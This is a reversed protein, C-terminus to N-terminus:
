SIQLEKLTRHAEDATSLKPDLTLAKKLEDIAKSDEGMKAFTMGLHYHTLANQPDKQLALQLLPVAQEVLDKKYYIWGLTDNFAPQDPAQAKARQALDTAVDLNGGNESYIWALNNAAVAATRDIELTREYQKQADTGRNLREFVLGVMTHAAVSKPERTAWEQFQALAASMDGQIAMLDGLMAFAAVNTPDLEVTKRLAREAKPADGVMAYTRAALFWARASDPATHVLEDVRALASAANRNGLDLAVLGALAESSSHDLDLARNFSARAAALDHTALFIGGAEAHVAVSNPFQVLLARIERQAGAADGSALVARVLTLRTGADNPALKAAQQAFETAAAKNGKAGYLSALAVHAGVASPATKLVQKFEQEAEEFRGLSQYVQALLFHAETSHEPDAALARTAAAIAQDHKKDLFLLRGELVLGLRNNPERKLLEDLIQHAGAARGESYEIAALRAKAIAYTSRTGALKDLIAAAEKTRRQRTLYDALTVQFEADEPRAAVLARLPAEALPVRGTALYLEALNANAQVSKPDVGLAEKLAAEADADRGQSRYFHALAVRTDARDPTAHVAKKFSAEAMQRDGRALQLAGFNSYLSAQGPDALIAENLRELAGDLDNLGALANGLLTLAAANRTSQRLVNEARVKADAYQNALLLLTGAKLQADISEPMTDAARVYERLASQADSISAYVDGLAVRAAGLKPDLQLATRYEIIANAHDKQAEFAAAKRVHDTASNRACAGALIATWIVCARLKVRAM